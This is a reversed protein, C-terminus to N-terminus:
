LFFVNSLNEQVTQFVCFCGCKDNDEHEEYSSTITSLSLLKQM